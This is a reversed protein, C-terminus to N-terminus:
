AIYGSATPGTMSLFRWTEAYQNGDEGETWGRSELVGNMFLHYQGSAAAVEADTARLQFHMQPTSVGSATAPNAMNATVAQIYTFTVTPAESVTVKHHHPQGREMVTAVTRASAFNSGAQVFGVLATTAGSATAWGGTGSAQVWRLSGEAFIRAERAM